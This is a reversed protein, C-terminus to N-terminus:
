HREFRLAFDTQNIAAGTREDVLAFLRLSGARDGDDDVVEVIRSGIRDHHRQILAIVM